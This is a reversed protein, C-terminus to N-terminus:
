PGDITHPAFSNLNLIGLQDDGVQTFRSGVHTYTGTLYGNFETTIPQHYTAALAAQFKPVSPLRKGSEIGSVVVPPGSPQPAVVTSRLTSDNYGASVDFDFHNNPALGFELEAGASRAKPVNFILRSSCSGATVTVQLDRIDVYFASLNISGRGGMIRSKSGIESKWATEDKWTDRGGFTVLDQPTCLPVNLPDHVGGM